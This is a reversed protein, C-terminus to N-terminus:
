ADDDVPPAEDSGAPWEIWVPPVPIHEPEADLPEADEDEPIDDWDPTVSSM